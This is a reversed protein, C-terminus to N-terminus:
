RGIQHLSTPYTLKGNLWNGSVRMFERVSNMNSYPLYSILRVTTNRTQLYYGHKLSGRITYLFNIYYHTLHLGYLQNLHGVCSVVRHFNPLCQDSSLGYFGLARLLLPAIPFRVGGELISM